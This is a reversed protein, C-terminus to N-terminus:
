TILKLSTSRNLTAWGLWCRGIMRGARSYLRMKAWSHTCSQCPTARNIWFLKISSPVTYLRHYHRSPWAVAPEGKPVEPCHWMAEIFLHKACILLDKSRPLAVSRSPGFQVKSGGARSLKGRGDVRSPRK